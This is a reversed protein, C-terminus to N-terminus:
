KKEVSVIFYLNFLAIPITARPHSDLRQCFFKM